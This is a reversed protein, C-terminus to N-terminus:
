ETGLAAELAVEVMGNFTTQREEASTVEHTVLHDSITLLCLARVGFKAALTYLAAAEMEVALVGYRAWMQFSTPDDQYFIDSSMINGVHVAYGHARARAYAAAMLGFDAIPAYSLGGFRTFNLNSDTCAAQGIVLDRLHVEAQYSGATGVRVLTTCGYGEILEQIYIGASPMGMGTGQVSVAKGKYSGTFGLMGRVGNHQVPNELFTQAIHQARLPDGPLLVTPAIQGEQASLHVSM